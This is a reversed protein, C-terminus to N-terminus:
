MSTRSRKKAKEVIWEFLPLFQNDGHFVFGEPHFQVGISLGDESEVGEIIGDPSIACVILGPALEKISQHHFSNVMATKCKLLSSLITNEEIQIPHSAYNRAEKQSHEIANEIQSPIDQYLTGGMAVNLAQEGRCIGLIPIKKKIARKILQLDFTDRQHTVKGLMIHPEEGYILPDIDEGGSMILGDINNLLDDIMLTDTSLPLIFPIGGGKRVSEVYTMGLKATTGDVYGSIGIIPTRDSQQAFLFVSVFPLLLVFFYKKM